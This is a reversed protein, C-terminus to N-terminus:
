KAPAKRDEFVAGFEKKNLEAEVRKFIKMYCKQFEMDPIVGIEQAVEKILDDGHYTYYLSRIVSEIESDYYYDYRAWKGKNVGETLKKARKLDYLRKLMGKRGTLTSDSLGTIKILQSVNRPEKEILDLLKFHRNVPRKDEVIKKVKPTFIVRNRALRRIVVEIVRVKINLPSSRHSGFCFM